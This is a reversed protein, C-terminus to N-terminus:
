VLSHVQLFSSDDDRSRGSNTQGQIVEFNPAWIKIKVSKVERHGTFPRVLPFRNGSIEYKLTWKQTTTSKVKIQGQIVEPITFKIKVPEDNIEDILEDM